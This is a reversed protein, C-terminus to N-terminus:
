GFTLDEVDGIYEDMIVLVLGGPDELVEGAEEWAEEGKADVREAGLEGFCLADDVHPSGFAESIAAPQHIGFSRM